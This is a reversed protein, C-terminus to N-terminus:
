NHIFQLPSGVYVSAAHGATAIVKAPTIKLFPFGMWVSELLTPIKQCQETFYIFLEHPM